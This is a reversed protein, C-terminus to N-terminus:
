SGVLGGHYLWEFAAEDRLLERGRAAFDQAIAESVGEARAGGVQGKRVMAGPSWFPVETVTTADFKRHHQKMWAFSSHEFITPWQEPRPEFGLFQAIKRISGEHDRKLDAFHLLLVNDHKRLPWWQALFGFFMAPLAEAVLSKRYFSDFDPQMFAAHPVQWLDLWEPTHQRMFPELSAIAEEPNRAVVVYKVHEVFPLLPPASHSKFARRRDLPMTDIRAVIEAASRRPHEVFELWPVEAYIDVFDPDGGTRLQHVINMMWTTGSKPPVSVVIDGERWRIKQQIEPDLWIKGGQAQPAM